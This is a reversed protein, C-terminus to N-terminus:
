SEQFNGLMLLDSQKSLHCSDFLDFTRDLQQLALGLQGLCRVTTRSYTKGSQLLSCNLSLSLIVTPDTMLGPYFDQTENLKLCADPKFESWDWVQLPQILLVERIKLSNTRVISKQYKLRRTNACLEQEYLFLTLIRASRCEKM